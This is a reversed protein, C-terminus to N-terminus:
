NLCLKKKKYQQVAVCAVNKISNWDNFIHSAPKHTLLNDGQKPKQMKGLLHSQEDWEKRGEPSGEDPLLWLM